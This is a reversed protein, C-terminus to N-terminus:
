GLQPPDDTGTRIPIGQNGRRRFRGPRKFARGVIETARARGTEFAERYLRREEARAMRRGTNFFHALAKGVAYTGAYAFAGKLVVGIAPLMGAAGRALARWGLGGAIISLVEFKRHVIDIPLGCAGAIRFALMVQNKTLIVTDGFQMTPYIPGIGPPLLKSFAASVVAVEANVLSMNVIIYELVDSRLGPLNRGLPLHLDWRTDLLERKFHEWEGENGITYLPITVAMGQDKINAAALPSLCAITCENVTKLRDEGLPIEFLRLADTARRIDGPHATEGRLHEQLWVIEDETGIVAVKLAFAASARIDDLKIEKVTKWVAGVNTAM